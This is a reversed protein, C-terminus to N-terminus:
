YVQKMEFLEIIEQAEKEDEIYFAQDYDFRGIYYEKGDPFRFLEIMVCDYENKYQKAEERWRHILMDFGKGRKVGAPKNKKVRSAEGQTRKFYLM